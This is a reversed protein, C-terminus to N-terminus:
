VFDNACTSPKMQQASEKIFCGVQEIAPVDSCVLLCGGVGDKKEQVVFAEPFALATDRWM